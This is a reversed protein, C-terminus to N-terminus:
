PDQSICSPTPLLLCLQSDFSNYESSCCFTSLSRLTKLLVRGIRDFVSQFFQIYGSSLFIPKFFLDWIELFQDIVLKSWYYFFFSYFSHHNLIVNLQLSKSHRLTPYASICRTTSHHFVKFLLIENPIPKVCIAKTKGLEGWLSFIM